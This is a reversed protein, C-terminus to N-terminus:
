SAARLKLSGSKGAPQQSGGGSNLQPSEGDPAGGVASSAMQNMQRQMIAKHDYGLMDRATEIDLIGSMLDARIQSERQQKDWAGEIEIEWEYSRAYDLLM